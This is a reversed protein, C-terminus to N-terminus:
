DCVLEYVEDNVVRTEISKLVKRCTESDSKVYAGILVRLETTDNLPYVFVYDRNLCSPWDKTESTPADLFRELVAELQPCKLGPLGYATGIVVITDIGSSYGSSISVSPADDFGRLKGIACNIARRHKRLAATRRRLGDTERKINAIATNIASM